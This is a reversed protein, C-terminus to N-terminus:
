FWELFNQWWTKEVPTTTAPKDKDVIVLVNEGPKSVNYKTRIEEEIGEQTQLRSIEANLTEQRDTMKKLQTEAVAVYSASEREKKYVDYTARGFFGVLVVLIVISIKSSFIKKYRKKNQFERM